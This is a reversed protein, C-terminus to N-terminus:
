SESPLGEAVPVNWSRLRDSIFEVIRQHEAKGRGTITLAEGFEINIPQRRDLPGFGHLIAGNTWFDTKIAAPIIPVGARAALKIGLSNFKSPDFLVSRTSQPFIVISRGRALKEAGQTLVDTLDKRPDKRTVTIPDLASMIPGFVPGKVLKEKVVFSAAKIPVILVPFVLTELTSMHNSVFVAPGEIKRINDIGKIYFRGGCGEIDRFVDYSSSAWAADDYLGKEALAKSAFVIRFFRLFLNWRTWFLFRDSPYSRGAEPTVYTDGPFYEKM